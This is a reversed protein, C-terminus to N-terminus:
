LDILAAEDISKSMTYLVTSLITQYIMCTQTVHLSEGKSRKM